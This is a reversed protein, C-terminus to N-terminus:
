KAWDEGWLQEYYDDPLDIFDQEGCCCMDLPMHCVDCLSEDQQM